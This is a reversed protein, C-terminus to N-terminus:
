LFVDQLLVSAPETAMAFYGDAERAFKEVAVEIAYQLEETLNAAVGCLVYGCKELLAIAKQADAENDEIVLIKLAEM